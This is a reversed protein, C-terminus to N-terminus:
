RIDNFLSRGKDYYGRQDLANFILDGKKMFAKSEEPYGNVAAIDSMKYFYGSFTNLISEFDPSIGADELIKQFEELTMKGKSM